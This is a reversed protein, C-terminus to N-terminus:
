APRARGSSWSLNLRSFREYAQAFRGAPRKGVPRCPTPRSGTWLGNIPLIIGGHPQQGSVRHILILDLPELNSTSISLAIEECVWPDPEVATATDLARLAEAGGIRGLAWAAHGRILPEADTLLSVLAPLLATDGANGAAVCANRVLGRRKARLM